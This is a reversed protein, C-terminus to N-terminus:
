NMSVVGSPKGHDAARIIAAVCLDLREPCPPKQDGGADDAAAVARGNWRSWGAKPDDATPVDRAAAVARMVGVVAKEKGTHYFLIRDGCKIQRLHKRALPNDVGDWVTRGDCRLDAFSYCTPEQKFLWLAM